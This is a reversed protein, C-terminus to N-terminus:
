WDALRIMDISFPPYIKRQRTKKVRDACGAGAITAIALLRYPM